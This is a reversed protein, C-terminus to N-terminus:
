NDTYRYRKADDTNGNETQSSTYRPGLISRLIRPRGDGNQVRLGFFISRLIWPIGGRPVLTFCLFFSRLSVRPRTDMLVPASRLSCM